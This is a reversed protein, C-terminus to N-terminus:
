DATQRSKKDHWHIRQQLVSPMDQHPGAMGNCHLIEILVEANKGHQPEVGYQHAEIDVNIRHDHQETQEQGYNHCQYALPVQVVLTDLIRKMQNPCMLPMLGM